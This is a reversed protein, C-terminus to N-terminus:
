VVEAYANEVLNHTINMLYDLYVSKMGGQLRHHIKVVADPITGIKGDLWVDWLSDDHLGLRPHVWADKPVTIGLQRKLMKRIMTTISQNKTTIIGIPHFELTPTALQVIYTNVLPNPTM